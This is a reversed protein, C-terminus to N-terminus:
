PRQAVGHGALRVRLRLPRSASISAVTGPALVPPRSFRLAGHGAALRIVARARGACSGNLYVRVGARSRAGTGSARVAVRDLAVPGLATPLQGVRACGTRSPITMRCDATLGGGLSGTCSTDAAAPARVSLSSAGASSPFSLAHVVGDTTGLFLTGDAITPPAYIQTQGRQMLRNAYAVAGDSARILYLSGDSSPVAVLGNAEALAGYVQAPLAREWLFAGTHPDIARVSGGSLKGAITTLGSAYYLRTGDFVGTSFSAGCDCVAGNSLRVQWVPGATVNSRDFAYLIGNKNTVAVLARGGSDTFLVPSTGFDSDIVQQSAPLAWAGKVALTGADLALLSQAYPEGPGGPNGVAVFVTSSSPVVVPTTWISGGVEGDPALKFVRDVQHTALNVKLLEGQVLPDDCLSAIGVYAYGNYIAPSAWNYHGGQASNDGTPVTWLVDGTTADLADWTSGGGGLYAVGGQIWAQSTVGQTLPNGDCVGATIGLFSSWRLAGSTENLAYENGDWSGVYVSGSDVTAKAAIVGDTKYSWRQPLPGNLSWPNCGALTLALSGAAVLPLLLRLLRRTSVRGSTRALGLL